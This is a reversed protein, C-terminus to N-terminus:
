VLDIRAADIVEIRSSLVYAKSAERWHAVHPTNLHRDFAERTDWDEIFTMTEPDTISANLDYYRCGPESRAHEILPWATGALAELTGPRIKLMAIVRIM